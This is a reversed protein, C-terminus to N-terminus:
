PNDSAPEGSSQASAVVASDSAPQDPEDTAADAIERVDAGNGSEVSQRESNTEVVIIDNKDEVSINSGSVGASEPVNATHALSPPPSVAVFSMSSASLDDAPRSSSSPPQGGDRPSHEEAILPPTSPLSMPEIEEFSVPSVSPSVKVFTGSTTVDAPLVITEKAAGSVRKEVKETATPQTGSSPEDGAPGRDKGQAGARTPSVDGASRRRPKEGGPLSRRRRSWLRYALLGVGVAAGAALLAKRYESPGESRLM